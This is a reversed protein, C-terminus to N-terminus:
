FNLPVAREILLLRAFAMQAKLKEVIASTLNNAGLMGKLLNPKRL